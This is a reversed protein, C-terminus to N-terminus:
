SLLLHKRRLFRVVARHWHIPVRYSAGEAVLCGLARLQELMAHAAEASLQLVAPADDLALRTHLVVALLAFRAPDSLDELEDPKPVEFLRVRLASGDGPDVLSRAWFHLVLDPIGEAYDWLLRLYRERTRALEEEREFVQEPDDMLDEFTVARGAAAMRRDILAAVDRESWRDLLALHRFVDQGRRAFMLWAWLYRSVSCVWATRHSRRVIQLLAEFGAQQGPARQAAFQVDDLIVLRAPGAELAAVVGEVTPPVEGGAQGLGLAGVLWGCFAASTPVPRDLRLVVAPAASSEAGLEAGAEREGLREVFTDLWATRGIGREGVVAWSVGIAGARWAAVDDLAAALGPFREVRVVADIAKREIVGQVEVPAAREVMRRDVTAQKELRRLFLFALAKRVQELRMVWRGVIQAVRRVGLSLAVPVAVVAGWLRGRSREVLGVMAGGPAMRLYAAFIDGQWRRLTVWGIPVAAFWALDLVLTYLYGRGLVVEAGILAVALVAATRGALRVTRLLRASFAEDIPAGPRSAIRVLIYHVLGSVLWYLAVVRAVRAMLRSEPADVLGVLLGFFVQVFVYFVLPFFVSKVPPWWRDVLQRRDSAVARDWRVQARPNDDKAWREIRGDIWRLIRQRRWVLPVAVMALLLLQILRWRTSARGLTEVLWASAQGVRAQREFVYYRAMLRLHGLERRLQGIGQTGLGLVAERRTTSLRSLLVLRLDNLARVQDATAPVAARRDAAVEAVFTAREKGAAEVARLVADRELPLARYVAADLDVGVEVVPAEVEEGIGDLAVALDSRATALEDVIADHLADAAAGGWAAEALATRAQHILDARRQAAAGRAARLAAAAGRAGALAGRVQEAAARAQALARAAESRANEAEALAEQQAQAARAVAEEAELRTVAASAQESAARRRAGEAELLASREALPRTLVALRLGEREVLLGLRTLRAREEITPQAARGAEAASQRAVLPDMEGRAVDIAQRLAARRAAVARDDQLDVAFLAAVEVGEPPPRGEAIPGLAAIQRRLTDTSTELDLAVVEVAADVEGPLPPGSDQPEPPPADPQADVVGGDAGGDGVGGDGVAGDGVAGDRDAGADPAARAGGWGVSAVFWVVVLSSTLRVM